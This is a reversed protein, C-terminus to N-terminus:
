ATAVTEYNSRRNMNLRGGTIAIAALGIFIASSIYAQNMLGARLMSSTPVVAFSLISLIVIAITTYEQDREDGYVLAFLLPLSIQCLAVITWNWFLRSVESASDSVTLFWSIDMFDSFVFIKIIVAITCLLIFSKTNIGLGVFPSTSGVIETDDTIASRMICVLVFAIIMDGFHFLSRELGGFKRSGTFIVGVFLAVAGSVGMNALRKLKPDSDRNIYTLLFFLIGVDFFSMGMMYATFSEAGPQCTPGGTLLQCIDFIFMALSSLVLLVSFTYLQWTM